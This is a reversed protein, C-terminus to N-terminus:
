WTSATSPESRGSTGQRPGRGRDGREDDCRGGGRPSGREGQVWKCGAGPVSGDHRLSTALRQGTETRVQRVHSCILQNSGQEDELCAAPDGRALQGVLELDGFPRGATVKLRQRHGADRDVRLRPSAAPPREDASGPVSRLPRVAASARVSNRTAPGDAEAVGCILAASRLSSQASGSGNRASASAAAAATTISGVLQSRVCIGAGAGM